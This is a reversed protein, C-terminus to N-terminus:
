KEEMGKFYRMLMQAIQTRTALGKPNLRSDSYGTIIGNEVAWQLAELAFSGVEDADNFQLEKNTASPNGAYRWLMVALQERTIPDDPGFLGNGYGGVVGKQNAWIVADAYWKSRNVDTFPSAGTSEPRGDRNYLIQALQARSLNEDPGFRGDGYGNMIGESLVYEVAEYYWAGGQLDSFAKAPSEPETGAKVFSADVKVNSDPMTFTYKGDGKDALELRNNKADTVTLADLAYGEAPTVTITVTSGKTANSKDIAVNGNAPKGTTGVSYSGGSGGGGSNSINQTWHAYVTNNDEFTAGNPVQTGGNAATYWGQFTYGNRSPVPLSSLKGDSSTTDSNTTVTGGNADFTITFTDAYGIAYTSYQKAFITITTKDKSVEYREGSGGNDMPKPGNHDRYVTYSAKGQLETPLPILTEILSGVETVRQSSSTGDPRTVTKTITLDLVLGLTQNAPKIAEIEAVDQPDEKKEVEMKFEVTGGDNVVAKDSDTYAGEEEENQFITELAGVVVPPTAENKIEVVTNTRGEPLTITLDASSSVIEKKVTKIIGGQEAVLNYTGATIGTFNFRGGDGTPQEAIMTLGQKLQVSVGSIGRGNQEVIGTINYPLDKWIAYVTTNENFTYSGGPQIHTGSVDSVAWCEFEKGEPATFGCGPLAFTEKDSAIGSDMTGSGGNANYTITYTVPPADKWIAYLTTDSTFTHSVGAKVQEGNVSGIAWADFVKGEPPMFGGGPLVFAKKDSATGNGMTGSGGNADYTITYAALPADKWIAYITTDRNFTRSEGAKVQEGNVSGIAWADFVKGEPPTFGCEPLVLAESDTATDSPMTGSGGNANYSVTYQRAKVIVTCSATYKESQTTVTITATGASVATITGSENVSAVNPNSSAWNVGKNSADSPTVTATITDSEGVTLTLSNKNLSVGTVAVPKASVTLTGDIYTITEEYNGGDPVVAGSAKIAVSGEKSTDPTPEYSLTPQKVLKDEGVLGTIVCDTATLTPATEGVNIKRSPATITIPAKAIVVPIIVSGTYDPDDAAVSVTLTYNGANIPAKGDPTNWTYTFGNVTVTEGDVTATPALAYTVPKGNYTQGAVSVGSIKVPAKNVSSVTITATMDAYNTSSIKISITGIDKLEQSDVSNVPLTLVSGEVKAGKTYYGGTISVTGLAYSVTGLTKGSELVPLLQALEFSYTKSQKNRVLLTGAAPTLAAAKSINLTM